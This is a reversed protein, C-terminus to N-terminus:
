WLDILATLDLIRYNQPDTQRDVYNQAAVENQFGDMREITLRPEVYFVQFPYDVKQPIRGLSAKKKDGLSIVKTAM